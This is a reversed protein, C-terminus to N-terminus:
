CPSTVGPDFASEGAFEFAGYSNSVVDAGLRVATQVATNLDDISNTCGEVLMIKANPAM